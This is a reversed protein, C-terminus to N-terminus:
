IKRHEEGVLIKNACIPCELYEFQKIYYETMEHGWETDYKNYSLKSGCNNCTCYLIPCGYRIIKVM